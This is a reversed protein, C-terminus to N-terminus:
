FYMSIPTVLIAPFKVRMEPPQPIPINLENLLDLYQIISNFLSIYYNEQTLKRLLNICEGDNCVKIVKGIINCHCNSNDFVYCDGNLFYKNNTSLIVSYGNCDMLIDQTANLSLKEKINKLLSVIISFNLSGINKDKLLENLIDDPFCEILSIISDLYSLMSNETITGKLKIFEGETLISSSSIESSYDKIHNLNIMKSIMNNHIEFSTYIRKIEEESRGLIRNELARDYGHFLTENFDSSKNNTKFGKNYIRTKGDSCYTRNNEDIHIKGALTNDCIRKSTRIDIYGNLYVSSLSKILYDDIYIFLNLLENM